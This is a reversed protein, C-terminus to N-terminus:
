ILKPKFLPHLILNSFFRLQWAKILKVWQQKVTTRKQQAAIKPLTSESLVEHLTRNSPGAQVRTSGEEYQNDSDDEEQGELIM